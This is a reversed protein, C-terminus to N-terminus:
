IIERVKEGDRFNGLDETNGSESDFAPAFAAFEGSDADVRSTITAVFFLGYQPHQSNIGCSGPDLFAGIERPRSM